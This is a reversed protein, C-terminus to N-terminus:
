AASLGRRGASGEPRPATEPRAAPARNAPSPRAALAATAQRPLMVSFRSGRGKWSEVGIEGGLTEVLRKTIALGLGSGEHSRTLGSSEQRFEDFLQPFFGPEIGIGTDEVALRLTRAEATLTVTIGGRETFKIANGVLNSLIRHLFSLDTVAQVPAEPADLRLTLGKQRALPEFLRVAERVEAAVDLPECHPQLQGAEFRALDLVANLTHLLRQGNQRIVEVFDLQPQPVEEALVATYGLIATLPTRIEHSMNTLFAAKTRAMEEAEEKAAILEAEFRKRATIERVAATFLRREGIPTEQVHIEVPFPAGDRRRSEFEVRRGLFPALGRAVAEKHTTRVPLPLLRTFPQGLLEDKSVGWIQEVERNVLVMLGQEDITVIGEGVTNLVAQLQVASELAATEAARLAGQTAELARERAQLRRSHHLLHLKQEDLLHDPLLRIVVPFADLQEYRRAIQRYATEYLQGAAEGLRTELHRYLLHALRRLLTKWAEPHTPPAEALGLPVPATAADPVGALWRLLDPLMPGDESGVLVHARGLALQLFNRCLLVDQREAPEFLLGFAPEDLLGPFYSRVNFRLTERGHEPEVEALYHEFLLYLAPLEERQAEPPLRNFRTAAVRLPHATSMKGVLRLLFAALAAEDTAHLAPRPRGARLRTSLRRLWGRM